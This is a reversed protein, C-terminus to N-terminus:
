SRCKKLQTNKTNHFEAREERTPEAWFLELTFNKKFKQHYKDKRAKDIMKKQLTLCNGEHIEGDHLYKKPIPTLFTTTENSILSYGLSHKLWNDKMVGIVVSAYGM